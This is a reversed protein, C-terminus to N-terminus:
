DTRASNAVALPQRAWGCEPCGANFDSALEYGCMPCRKRKIRWWRRFGPVLLLPLWASSYALTNLAAGPWVPRLPLAAPKYVICTPQRISRFPLGIGGSTSYEYRWPKGTLQPNYFSCSFSRMPWGAALVWVEEVRRDTQLLAHFGAWTPV